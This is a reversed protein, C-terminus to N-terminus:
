KKHRGFLGRKEKKEGDKGKKVASPDVTHMRSSAPSVSPMQPLTPQLGMAPQGSSAPRGANLGMNAMADTPLNPLPPKDYQSPPIIVPPLLPVQRQSSTTATQSARDTSSALSVRSAPEREKADERGQSRSRYGPISQMILPPELRGEGIQETLHGIQRLFLDPGLMHSSVLVVEKNTKASAEYCARSESYTAGAGMYIIVRQRNESSTQKRKSSAWTAKTTRLSTAAAAIAGTDELDDLPPRTYPFVEQDVKNAAHKALLIEVATKFRGLAYTPPPITPPPEDSILVPAPRQRNEKLKRQTNLGLLDFNDLRPRKTPNVRSHLLLKELDAPLLGDKFQQYLAILRLRDTTEIQDDDLMRVMQDALFKPKRNDVDLGTALMQSTDSKTTYFAIHFNVQELTALDGLNRTVFMDMAEQLMTLHLTYQEKQAQYEPLGAMMQKIRTLSAAGDDQQTYMSNKENYRAFRQILEDITDKAHRHRYEVWIDDAEHIDLMKPAEGENVKTKFQIKDHSYIPLLDFIMAQYTFEHLLPAALDLSRDTIYLVGRPRTTVPPFDQHFKAYLDLEDQVFKALLQCSWKKQERNLLHRLAAPPTVTKYSRAADM